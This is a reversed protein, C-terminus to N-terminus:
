HATLKGHLWNVLETKYTEWEPHGEWNEMGHPAGQLTVLQYDVGLSDLRKTLRVAQDWLFENTGHILLLPPMDSRVQYYPSYERMISRARDDLKDQKFLRVLLSRPSADKVMPEFDYVGYFSIVGEVQCPERDVPDTASEDGSCPLAGVLVVLQGGASEGLLALRAPDIRYDAAHHRIFRIARRVDELQDRNEFEPTLRYDISFWALGAKALTALVPVIYTTKSGAEWGGGHVVIVAPFPGEGDPIFADMMLDERASDPSRSYVINKKLPGDGPRGAGSPPVPGLEQRLWAVLQERYSWQSPTWNESRHIGGEVSILQCQGGSENLKGCFARATDIPVATDSSGHVVLTSPLDRGSIGSFSHEALAATGTSGMLSFQLATDEAIVAFRGLDFIGGVLVNARVSHPIRLSAQAALYAGTDEGLFVLREPDIRFFDAHCRIFDVASVIDEIQGGLSSAPALRYDVAFWNFGADTLLEQFHSIFARRSGTTWGGGHILIVGPRTEGGPHVFADLLLQQGDVVRFPIDGMSGPVVYNGNRDLVRAEPCENSGHLGLLSFPGAMLLVLLGSLMPSRHKLSLAKM